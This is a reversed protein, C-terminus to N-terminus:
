KQKQHHLEKENYLQKDAEVLLAALRSRSSTVTTYGTSLSLTYSVNNRQCIEKLKDDLDQRVSGPDQDRNNFTALLFEDGGMRAAFGNHSDATQKLAEAVMCLAHDGEQHGYKDNIGKFSDVDIGYLYFPHEESASGICDMLFIEARRRNNLGTLADNYIQINLVDVYVFYIGITLGLCMIPTNPNIIQVIGTLSPAVVFKILSFARARVMASKTQLIKVVSLIPISFNYAIAIGGQIMFLPGRTYMGDETIHFLIGTWPSSLSLMAVVAMPIIAAIYFWRQDTFTFKLRATGFRMWFYGVLMLSVEDVITIFNCFWVPYVGGHDLTFVMLIDFIVYVFFSWIMAKMSRIETESGMSTKLNFIVPLLLFICSLDAILYIM